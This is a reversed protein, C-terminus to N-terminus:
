GRWMFVVIFPHEFYVKRQPYPIRKEILRLLSDQKIFINVQEDGEPLIEVQLGMARLNRLAKEVRSDYRLQPM